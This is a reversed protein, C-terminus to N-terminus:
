ESPADEIELLDLAPKGVDYSFVKAGIRDAGFAGGIALAPTRDRPPRRM